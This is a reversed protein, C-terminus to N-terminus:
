KKLLRVLKELAENSIFSDWVIIQSFPVPPTEKQYSGGISIIGSANGVPSTVLSGQDIHEPDPPALLQWDLSTSGGESKWRVALWYWQSPELKCIPKLLSKDAEDAIVLRLFGKVIAIEFHTPVGRTSREFLNIKAPKDDEPERFSSPTQFLLVVTGQPSSAISTDSSAILLSSSPATAPDTVFGSKGEWYGVGPVLKAGRLNLRGPIESGLNEDGEGQLWLVPRNQSASEM